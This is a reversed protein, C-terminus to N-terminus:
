RLYHPENARAQRECHAARGRSRTLEKLHDIFELSRDDVEAADQDGKNWDMNLPIQGRCVARFHHILNKASYVWSDMM